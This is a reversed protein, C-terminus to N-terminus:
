EAMGRDHEALEVGRGGILDVPQEGVSADEIRESTM